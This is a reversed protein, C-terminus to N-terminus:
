KLGKLSDEPYTTVCADDLHQDVWIWKTRVKGEPNYGLVLGVEGHLSNTHSVRDGEKFKRSTFESPNLCRDRGLDVMLHMPTDWYGEEGCLYFLGGNKHYYWSDPMGEYRVAAYYKGNAKGITYDM